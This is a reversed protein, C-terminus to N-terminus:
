VPVLDAVPNGHVTIRMREGAEVRCGVGARALWGGSVSMYMHRRAGVHEIGVGRLDPVLDDSVAARLRSATATSSPSSGTRRQPPSRRM